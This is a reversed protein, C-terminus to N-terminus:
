SMPCYSSPHLGVTWGGGDQSMDCYVDFPLGSWNSPKITYVGSTTSGANFVDLCDKINACIEGDGHYGSICYCKRIDNETECVAESSCNYEGDVTIRGNM